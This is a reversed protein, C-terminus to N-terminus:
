LTLKNVKELMISVFKGSHLPSKIKNIINRQVIVHLHLGTKKKKITGKKTSQQSLSGQKLILYIAISM